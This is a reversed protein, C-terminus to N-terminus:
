CEWRSPSFDDMLWTRISGSVGRSLSTKNSIAWPFVFWCIASWRTRNCKISDNWRAQFSIGFLDVPPWKKGKPGTLGSRNLLPTAHKLRQSAEGLRQDIETPDHRIHLHLCCKVCIVRSSHHPIIPFGQVQGAEAVLRASAQDLMSTLLRRGVACGIQSVNPTSDPAHTRHFAGIKAPISAEEQIRFRVPLIWSIIAEINGPHV